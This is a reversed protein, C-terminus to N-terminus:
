RLNTNRFQGVNWEIQTNQASAAQRKQAKRLGEEDLANVYTKSDLTTIFAQRAAEDNYIAFQVNMKGGALSFQHLASMMTRASQEDTLEGLFGTGMAPVAISQLQHEEAIKLANYFGTQVVKFENNKGSCVSAVHIHYRANGGGETLLVTGFNQPGRERLFRRYLDLGNKGGAKEIAGAVGDDSAKDNFHPIIYADVALRTMSGDFITVVNEEVKGEHGYYFSM